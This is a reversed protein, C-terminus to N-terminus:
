INILIFETKFPNIGIAYSNTLWHITSNGTAYWDTLWGPVYDSYPLLNNVWHTLTQQYLYRAKRDASEAFLFPNQTAYSVLKTRLSLSICRQKALAVTVGLMVHQMFPWWGKQIGARTWINSIFTNIPAGTGQETFMSYQKRGCYQVDFTRMISLGSRDTRM